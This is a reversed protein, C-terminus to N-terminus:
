TTYDANIEVYRKSLDCGLWDATSAGRNLHITFHVEDAKMATELAALTPGDLDVAEGSRCVAIGAIDIGIKGPQILVGSRGIAAALRGWNPDAGHVATKVLNSGVVTRGIRDAESATSASRVHVHFLRTVGEGDRVIMHALEGCLDTLADCFDDFAGSRAVIPAGGAAGSALIAVTDSTSTDHDVSIRNFSRDAAHRLAAKLPGRDITADTTIFSLMTAMNPAIMGSGKAIAGLTLTRGGIEIRRLAQKPVLDTTMIARAAAADIEPGRGLRAALAQVGPLLRDMPLRHGIIGTSSPLVMRPDLPPDLPPTLAEALTKCTAEADAIGAAGTCVNSIGANCVIAKLLGGRLHRRGVTVPAGPVRNRTFVAAAPCPADAVILALDPQGSPKLGCTGAAARFGLPATVSGPAPPASADPAADPAHLDPPM